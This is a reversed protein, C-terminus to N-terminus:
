QSQGITAWNRTAISRIQEPQDILKNWAECAADLIVEYGDFIRNAFIRNSLYNQRLYQWINEVPNLEPSRPPLPLLSINEPPDLKDTTHWGAQDMLVIAHAGPAIMRAIEELHAQMAYTNAKPMVLAAGKAQAPAVAGFLYASKYRQDKPQRPRTGKRAWQRVLANKQGLRM